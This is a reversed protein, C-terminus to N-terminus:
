HQFTKITHTNNKRWLFSLDAHIENFSVTFMSTLYECMLDDSFRKIRWFKLIDNINTNYVRTSSFMGANWILPLHHVSTLPFSKRVILSHLPIVTIRFFWVPSIKCWMNDFTKKKVQDSSIFRRSQKDTFARSNIKVHHSSTRLGDPTQWCHRRDDLGGENQGCLPDPVPLILMSVPDLVSCCYTVMVKMTHHKYHIFVSIFIITNHTSLSPPWADEDM